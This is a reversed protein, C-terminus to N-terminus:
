RTRGPAPPTQRPVQPVQPATTQTPTTTRAVTGQASRLRGAAAISLRTDGQQFTAAQHPTTTPAAQPFSGRDTTILATALGNDALREANERGISYGRGTTSQKYLDKIMAEPVMRGGYNNSGQEFEKRGLEWRTRNQQLCHELPVEVSLIVRQDYGGLELDKLLRTNKVENKLTADYLLNYGEGRAWREFQDQLDASERHILSAMESPSLERGFPLRMAEANLQPLGGHEFITVKFQDPDLAVYQNLDVGHAEALARGLETDQGQLRSLTGQATGKGAGPAGATMLVARGDRPLGACRAQFQELVSAHLSRRERDWRLGDYYRAYTDQNGPALDGAPGMRRQLERYLQEYGSTM